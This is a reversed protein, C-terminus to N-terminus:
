PLLTAREWIHMPWNTALNGGGAIALADAGRIAAIVALAPDTPELSGPNEVAALVLSMREDMAARAGAGRFDFGIRPVAVIGHRASTEAPDASIGVVEVSRMRAQAVFEEFMAEDGIHVVDGAAGIDGIVVVRM